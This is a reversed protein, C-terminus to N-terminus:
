RKLVLSHKGRFRRSSTMCKSVHAQHEFTVYVSCPHPPHPKMEEKNQQRQPILSYIQKNVACLDRMLLVDKGDTDLNFLRRATALPSCSMHRLLLAEDPTLEKKHQLQKTKIDEVTYHRLLKRKKLVLAVLKKNDYSVTVNQVKGRKNFFQFWESPDTADPPPNSVQLTFDKANPIEMNLRVKLRSQLSHQPGGGSTLLLAVLLCISLLVTGILDGVVSWVPLPCDSLYQVHCSAMDYSSSFDSINKSGVVSAQILSSICHSNSDLFVLEPPLCAVSGVLRPDANHGAYERSNMVLAPVFLFGLILCVAMGVLLEILYVTIAAGCVALVEKWFEPNFVGDGRSRLSLPLSLPKGGRRAGPSRSLVTRPGELSVREECGGCDVVTFDYLAGSKLCPM